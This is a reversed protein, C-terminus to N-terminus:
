LSVVDTNESVYALMDEVAAECQSNVAGAFEGLLGVKGNSRLWETAAQLRESGITSSVCEEHTGSGDTDLYQHM